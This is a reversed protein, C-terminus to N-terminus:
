VLTPDLFWPTVGKQCPPRLKSESFVSKKVNFGFYVNSIVIHILILFIKIRWTSNCQAIRNNSSNKTESFDYSCECIQLPLTPPPGPGRAFVKQKTKGSFNDNQNSGQGILLYRLCRRSATVVPKAWKLGKVGLQSKCRIEGWLIVVSDCMLTMLIFSM